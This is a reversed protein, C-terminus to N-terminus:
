KFEGLEQLGLATNIPESHPCQIPMDLVSHHHSAVASAGYYGNYYSGLGVGSSQSVASNSSVAATAASYPHMTPHNLGSQASNGGSNAAASSQPNAPVTAMETINGNNNAYPDLNSPQQQQQVNNSSNQPQVAGGHLPSVNTPVPLHSQPQNYFNNSPYSNYNASNGYYDMASANAGGAGMGNVLGNNAAANSTYGNHLPSVSAHPHHNLHMPHHHHHHHHYPSLYDDSPPFKPDITPGGGIPGQFHPHPYGMLFSSM